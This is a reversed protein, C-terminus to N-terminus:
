KTQVVIADPALSPLVIQHLVFVHRLDVIIHLPAIRLYISLCMAFHVLYFRTARVEQLNSIVRKNRIFWLLLETAFFSIQFTNKSKM